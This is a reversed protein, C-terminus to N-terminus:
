VHKKSVFPYFCYIYVLHVLVECVPEPGKPPVPLSIRTAPVNDKIRPAQTNKKEEFLNESNSTNGSGSRDGPRHWQASAKEEQGQSTARPKGDKPIWRKDEYRSFNANILSYIHMKLVPVLYSVSSCYYVAIIDLLILAIQCCHGLTVYKARIFNEIGVRDYNPPLEAEWYNNSKENGMAADHVLIM